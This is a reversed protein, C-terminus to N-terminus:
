RSDSGSRSSKAGTRELEQEAIRCLEDLPRRLVQQTDEPLKPLADLALRCAVELRVIADIAEDM